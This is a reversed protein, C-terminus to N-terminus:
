RGVGSPLPQPSRTPGAVSLGGANDFILRDINVVRAGRPNAPDAHSHYVIFLEKGDQSTTISNHGPSSVGIDLNSALIPNGPNKVWPGLPSGAAAYGVGYGPAGTNNASYTMYYKGGHKIVSPGENCRNWTWNIREWPQDAELLKVPEGMLKALDSSLAVGNILGYSYGDRAGNQSFYLYPAGDSDVFIHADIASYGADFWPAYLDRYPGEPRDSVALATLMRAPNSGRVRASYTMYFRGRYHIVEPAWFNADAWGDETKRLAWGGRTWHVLDSSTYYEFGQSAATTGFLYYKQEHLLVFPDGMRVPTDGVPNIYQGLLMLLLFTM